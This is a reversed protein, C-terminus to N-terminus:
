VLRSSVKGCEYSLTSYVIFLNFQFDSLLTIYQISMFVFTFYLTFLVRLNNRGRRREDLHHWRLTRVLASSVNDINLCPGLIRPGEFSKNFNM